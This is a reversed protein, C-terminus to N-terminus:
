WDGYQALLRARAAELEHAYNPSFVEAIQRELLCELNDLAIKDSSVPAYDGSRCRALYEFIVLAEDYELDIRISESM